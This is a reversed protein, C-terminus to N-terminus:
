ETPGSLRGLWTGLQTEIITADAVVRVDPGAGIEFAVSQSWHGLRDALAAVLDEPGSVKVVPHKGDTLLRKLTGTLDAIARERARASLFPVLIRSVADSLTETLATGAGAFDASLRDAEEAAWRAREGALQRAFAQREAELQEDFAQEAEARGLRRGQAEAEALRDASAEVPADPGLGLDPPPAVTELDFRPIHRTLANM